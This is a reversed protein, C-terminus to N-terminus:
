GARVRGGGGRRGGRVWACGPIGRRRGCRGGRRRGRRRIARRGRSRGRRAVIFAQKQLTHGHGGNNQMRIPFRKIHRAAAVIRDRRKRYSGVPRQVKQFVSGGTTSVGRPMASSEVPLHSTTAPWFSLRSTVKAMSGALPRAVGVPWSARTEAGTQKVNGGPPLPRQFNRARTGSKRGQIRVIPGSRHAPQTHPPGVPTRKLSGPM